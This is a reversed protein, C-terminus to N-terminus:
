ALLGCDGRRGDAILMCVVATASPFFACQSCVAMAVIQHMICCLLQMVGFHLSLYRLCTMSFVLWYHVVEPPM